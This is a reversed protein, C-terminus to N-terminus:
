EDDEEESEGRAPLSEGAAMTDNVKAPAISGNVPGLALKSLDALAESSHQGKGSKTMFLQTAEKGCGPLVIDVGGAHTALYGTVNYVNDNMILWCDQKTDHRSIESASLTLTSSRAVNTSMTAIPKSAHIGFIVALAILIIAIIIGLFLELKM